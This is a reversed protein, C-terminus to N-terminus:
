LCSNLYQLAEARSQLTGALQMDTIQQLITKFQPGPKMGLAILDRGTLLPPPLEVQGAVEAVRDLMVHYNGLKSHSSICDIRHLELELPFNDNALLRRWKPPRMKDVHAFRMHNGVAATVARTIAASFKFRRMIKEAMVQGVQEHRYFHEIGDDGVSKVVPKGVDHLLISWALEVSPLQMHELMILTHTMVDGEPHYKAPQTVGDLAAIEPLVVALIGLKHLLRIGAAPTASLLISNLEERVREVSLQRLREKLAGAAGIIDEDLVFGLRNAFRVARLIRLYDESFREEAAGITRIVGRRIDRQGGHFDFLEERLPDYFMGNITFDRRAADRTINDTYSINEPHRGDSYEREERMTAIEFQFDNVVVTVIGFAAGIPYNHPFIESVQEPRADTVIDIDKPKFGLLLDRVVGGVFYAQFHHAQLIAAVERAAKFLESQLLIASFTPKIAM